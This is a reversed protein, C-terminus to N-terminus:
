RHVADAAAAADTQLTDSGCRGDEGASPAAATLKANRSDQLVSCM